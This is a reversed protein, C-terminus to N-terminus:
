GALVHTHRVHVGEDEDSVYFVQGAPTTAIGEIRPLSPFERVRTAEVRGSPAAPLPCRWHTAVTDRGGPYDELLISGKERADINGTVLHLEDGDVTLDRVGAMTGGRGVADVVCFGRVTPPEAGPEFLRQVGDVDVLLPRGDAGAPFRLGLLLSGDPRFAAGEVNLPVDGERVKGAWRKGKSRGLAITGAIFAERTRPGLPVLEPGGAALADNVLRHLLFSPRAVQMRTADGDTCHEVAAERFRAVFCRKRQLPGRKSGFQSGFVYVWGDHRALAEADETTGADGVPTAHLREIEWGEDTDQGARHGIVAVCEHVVGEDLAVWFGLDWGHVGLLEPQEVALLGSAENPHLDLEIMPLEAGVHDGGTV